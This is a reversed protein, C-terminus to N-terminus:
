VLRGGRVVLWGDEWGVFAHLFGGDVWWGCGGLWVALDPGRILLQQM